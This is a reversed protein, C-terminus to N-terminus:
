RVPFVAWDSIESLARNIGVRKMAQLDRVVGEKSINDSIWYWYVSTLVSDPITVFGSEILSFGSNPKRIPAGSVSIGTFAILLTLLLIVPNRLNGTM